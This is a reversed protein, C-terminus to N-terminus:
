ITAIIHRDHRLGDFVLELTQIIFAELVEKNKSRLFNDSIQSLKVWSTYPKPSKPHPVMPFKKPIIFYRKQTSKAKVTVSAIKCEFLSLVIEKTIKRGWVKRHLFIPDFHDRLQKKCDM